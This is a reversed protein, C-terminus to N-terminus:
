PMKPKEGAVLRRRSREWGVDALRQSTDIVLVSVVAIHGFVDPLLQPPAKAQAEIRQSPHALEAYHHKLKWGPKHESPFAKRM